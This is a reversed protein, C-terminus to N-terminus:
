SAVEDPNANAAEAEAIFKEVKLKLNDDGILFIRNTRPDPTLTFEATENSLLKELQAAVRECDTFDLQFFHTPVSIHPLDIRSILSLAKTLTTLEDSSVLIIADGSKKVRLDGEFLQELARGAQESNLYTLSVSAQHKRQEAASLPLFLFLILALKSVGM